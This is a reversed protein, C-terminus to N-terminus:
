PEGASGFKPEPLVVALGANVQDILFSTAEDGHLAAQALSEFDPRPVAVLDALDPTGVPAGPDGPLPAPHAGNAGGECYARVGHNHRYDAIAGAAAAAIQEHRVRADSAIREHLAQNDANIAQQKAAAMQSGALLRVNEALATDRQRTHRLDSCHSVGLALLLPGTTILWRYRKFLAIATDLFLAIPM